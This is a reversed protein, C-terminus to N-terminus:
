LFWNGVPRELPRLSRIEFEFFNCQLYTLESIIIFCMPLFLICCNCRFNMLSWLDNKKEEFYLFRISLSISGDQGVIGIIIFKYSVSTFRSSASILFQGSAEWGLVCFFFM